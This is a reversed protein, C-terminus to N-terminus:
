QRSGLFIKEGRTLGLTQISPEIATFEALAFGAGRVRDRLDRGYYRVHDWQGFHAARGKATLITSDEYTADWGEVIPAMIIALGGPRLVRHLEQLAKRDDVHELVHLAVVVDAFGDPLAMEEINIVIQGYNPDLDATVYEGALEELFMSISPEPAFHLVTKGKVADSHSDVWLKLLRHRERSLCRPCQAGYRPPHGCAQFRGEYGCINCRHRVGSFLSAGVELIYLANRIRGFNAVGFNQVIQRKLATRM